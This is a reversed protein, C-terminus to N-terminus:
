HRFQRINTFVMAIGLENCANIVEADKISGGPQIIAGIGADAATKMSDPFPFFGDSAMVSGEADVTAHRIALKVAEVRSTQGAGIGVTATGKALVIANSHAHKAVNWAFLLSELEADTPHKRTVFRIDNEGVRALNRDQVLMGGVVNKVETKETRSTKKGLGDVALVRLNAKTKLEALAKGDYSPAVVVECFFATVQKATECDCERNLAIIGGFASERDCDLARGFAASIKKHLAVGCPNTHKVIAACPEAFEKAIEIASNADNINNFSLEKGHLQVASSICPELAHPFRYFAAEQHPNEGYRLNAAKELALSLRQPFRGTSFEKQTGLFNNIAADYAATLGFADYALRRRMEIGVKGEHTKMEGIVSKYQEPSTVVAVGEFNKAAARAMAPGGIDINEAADRISAGPKSVTEAFPYLNVCVLDIPKIRLKKLQAMHKRSGRDALIAAHIKPHLTKVRGDLCEPFQTVKEVPTAKIRAKKLEAATGGSAIIEVGFKCLEGAFEVLGKKDSVSILARSIKM